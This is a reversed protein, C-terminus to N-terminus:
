QWFVVDWCTEYIPADDCVPRRVNHIKLAYYITRERDLIYAIRM